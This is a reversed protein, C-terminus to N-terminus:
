KRYTLKQTRWIMSKRIKIIDKKTVTHTNKPLIATGEVLQRVLDSHAQVYMAKYQDITDRVALFVAYWTEFPSGIRCQRGFLQIVDKIDTPTNYMITTECFQLNIGRIGAKTMLVCQLGGKKIEDKIMRRKDVPVDGYIEHVRVGKDTMLNRLIHRTDHYAVFVIFPNNREILQDIADIFLREKSSLGKTHVGDTLKQLSHLYAAPAGSSLIESAKKKYVREEEATFDTYLYRFRLDATTTSKITFPEMLLQLEPLRKYGVIEKIIRKNGARGILRDQYEIFRKAFWNFTKFPSDGKFVLNVCHYTNALNNHIPTATLGWVTDVLDLLRQAAHYMSTDPNIFADVEDVVIVVNEFFREDVEKLFQLVRSHPCVIIEYGAISGPYFTAQTTTYTSIDEEWSTLANKPSLIVIKDFQRLKFALLSALTKGQGTPFVLLGADMRALATAGSTQHEIWEIGIFEV